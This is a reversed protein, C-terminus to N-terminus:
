LRWDSRLISYQVADHFCGNLLFRNRLTGERIAGVGEAVQRSAINDFAALIEVREFDRETFAFNLVARAAAQAVGRGTADTRVWYGLNARRNARDLQNLGCGGLFAGDEGEIVFAYQEGAAFAAVQEEVWAESDQLSYQAHCWPLWRALERRSALVAACLAAADATEYRRLHVTPTPPTM